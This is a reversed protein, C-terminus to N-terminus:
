PKNSALILRSIQTRITADNSKQLVRKLVPEAFRGYKHINEEAARREEPSTSQLQRVSEQLSKEMAPTIIESRCVLVRVLEQPQPEIQLPLVTDTIKRPLLYFVRLGEEFWSNRWTKIMAKAEKEFLGQAILMAELTQGISNSNQNLASLDVSAQNDRLDFVQFAKKGQDNAFVIAEAIKESSLNKLSLHEGELKVSVPPQFNGVGRYFLFKEYQTQKDGCVRLLAADTERAPYYHSAAKEVPLETTANPLVTFRGWDIGSNVFRAQPFWETIKGSPFNVKASVITERDAYFYIVPTEMRVLAELSYKGAYTHRLGKRDPKNLQYVFTPLDSAGHLPRWELASGEEGAITTFTGWEHAVLRNEQARGTENRAQSFSELSKGAFPSVTLFVGFVCAIQLQLALKCVVSLKM